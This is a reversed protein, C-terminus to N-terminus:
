CNAYGALKSQTKNYLRNPEPEDLNPIVWFRELGM